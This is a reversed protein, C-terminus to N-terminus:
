KMFHHFWKTGAKKSPASPGARRERRSLGSGSPAVGTKPDLDPVVDVTEGTHTDIATAKGHEQPAAGLRRQGTIVKVEQNESM